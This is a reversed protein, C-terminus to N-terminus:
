SVPALCVRGVTEGRANVLSSRALLDLQAADILGLFKLIGAMAVDAARRSGDDIKLAVGLGKYPAIAVHVGEAGMKVVFRGCAAEMALTDFRGTGAVFWPQHGMAKIIRQTAEARGRTLSHPSALRAM